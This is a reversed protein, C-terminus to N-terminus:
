FPLYQKKERTKNSLWQKANCLFYYRSRYINSKKRERKIQCDNNQMAYSTIGLVTFIAKKERTKNSLWQKANCLFYYRSRYINSKKERSKNSLWQKANCLIYYRSRYINSKRERKILCDNNQMAYATIGLVTFIAKKRERKILCDNNQM